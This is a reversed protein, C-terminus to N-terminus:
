RARPIVLGAGGGLVAVIRTVHVVVMGVVTAITNCIMAAITIVGV